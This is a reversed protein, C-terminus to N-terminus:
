IFNTILCQKIQIVTESQNPLKSQAKVTFVAGENYLCSRSPILVTSPFPPLPPSLYALRQFSILYLLLSISSCNSLLPYPLSLHYQTQGQFVFQLACHCLSIHPRGNLKTRNFEAKDFDFNDRYAKYFFLFRVWLLCFHCPFCSSVKYLVLNM